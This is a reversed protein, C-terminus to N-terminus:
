GMGAVYAGCDRLGLEGPLARLEAFWLPLCQRGGWTAGFDFNRTDRYSAARWQGDSFVLASYRGMSEAIEAASDISEEGSVRMMMAIRAAEVQDFNRAAHRIFPALLGPHFGAQTIFCRRARKIEAALPALKPYAEQPYHIDLYDVGCDLAVRATQEVYETTTAAVLLLDVGRLADRMSVVDAADARRGSVPSARRGGILKAAASQARELSRGALILEADTSALLQKAIALGAGGYGGLILIRKKAM